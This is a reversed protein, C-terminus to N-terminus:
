KNRMINVAGLTAVLLIGGIILGGWGSSKKEDSNGGNDVGEATKREKEAKEELRVMKAKHNELQENVDSVYEDFYDQIEKLKAQSEETPNEEHELKAVDLKEQVTRITLVRQKLIKPLSDLELGNQNLTDQINM